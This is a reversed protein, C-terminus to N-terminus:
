VMITVLQLTAVRSVSVIYGDSMPFSIHRRQNINDIAKVFITSNNM